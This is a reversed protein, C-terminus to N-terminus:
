EIVVNLPTNYHITTKNLDLGWPFAGSSQEDEGWSVYLDTLDSNSFAGYNIYVRNNPHTLIYLKSISSNEFSRNSIYIVFSTTGLEQPQKLIFTDIHKCNSFGANYLTCIRDDVIDTPERIWEVRSLNTMDVFCTVNILKVNPLSISAIKTTNRFAYSLIISIHSLDISELNECGDFANPGIETITSPLVINKLNTCGSFTGQPLETNTININSLDISVTDVCDKFTYGSLTVPINLFNFTTLASCGAFMYDPLTLGNTKVYQTPKVTFTQLYKHNMVPKLNINSDIRYEISIPNYNNDLETYVIGSGGTFLGSIQTAMAPLHTQRSGGKNVIANSLDSVESSLQALKERIEEFLENM